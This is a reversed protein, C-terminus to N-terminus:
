NASGKTNRAAWSSWLVPFQINKTVFSKGNKFSKDPIEPSTKNQNLPLYSHQTKALLWSVQFLKLRGAELKDHM